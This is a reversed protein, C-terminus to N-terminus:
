LAYARVPQAFFVFYTKTSLQILVSTYINQEGSFDKKIEKKSGVQSSKNAIDDTISAQIIFHIGSQALKPKMKREDILLHAVQPLSKAKNMKTDRAGLM